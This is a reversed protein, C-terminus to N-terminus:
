NKVENDRAGSPPSGPDGDYDIDDLDCGHVTTNTLVMRTTLVRMVVTPHHLCLLTRIVYAEMATPVLPIMMVM